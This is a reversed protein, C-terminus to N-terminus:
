SHGAPVPLWPEFERKLSRAHARFDINRGVCRLIRDRLSETCALDWYAPIDIDNGRSEFSFILFRAGREALKEAVVAGEARIGSPYRRFLELLILSSHELLERSLFLAHNEYTLHYGEFQSALGFRILRVLAAGLEFTDAIVLLTETM